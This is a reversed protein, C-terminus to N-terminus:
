YCLAHYMVSVDFAKVMKALPVDHGLYSHGGDPISKGLWQHFHVPMSDLFGVSALFADLDVQSTRFFCEDVCLKTTWCPTNSM